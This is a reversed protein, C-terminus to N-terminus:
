APKLTAALRSGERRRFNVAVALRELHQDILKGGLRVRHQAFFSKVEEERDLLAIVGECMRPMASDPYKRTMEDWRSRM